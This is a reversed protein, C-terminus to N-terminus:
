VVSKRDRLLVRYRAEAMVRDAFGNQMPLVGLANLSDGVRLIREFQIQCTGCNCLHDDIKRSLSSPLEHDAYASLHSLVKKCRMLM